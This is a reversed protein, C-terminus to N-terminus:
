QEYLAYGRAHMIRKSKKNSTEIDIIILHNNLGEFNVQRNYKIDSKLKFGVRKKHNNSETELPYGSIQLLDM